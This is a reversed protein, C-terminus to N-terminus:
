VIASTFDATCDPGLYRKPDGMEYLLQHVVSDRTVMGGTGDHKTVHFTGDATAEIIPYGINAWGQM